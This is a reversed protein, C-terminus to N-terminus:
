CAPEWWMTRKQLAELARARAARYGPADPIEEYRGFVVISIWERQSALEDIELCVCPNSRMWEIKQGLTTVGYLHQGDYAFNVPIIYPQCGRACALRGFDAQSLKLRCEDETMEHIIM